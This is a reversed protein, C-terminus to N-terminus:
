KRVYQQKLLQFIYTLLFTNTTMFLMVVASHSLPLDQYGFIPLMWCIMTWQIIYIATINKSSYILLSFFIDQPLKESIFQWSYLTVLVLGLHWLTGPIHTRYFGWSHDPTCYYELLLGVGILISGMKGWYRFTSATNKKFYYGIVVGVLPYVLWPFLPFFVFPPRGTALSVGYNLLPNIVTIDWFWPSLIGVLAAVILAWIHGHKSRYVIHLLVLAIASFHLIDGIRLLQGMAPEGGSLQLDRLVGEPLGGLQYPLVFKLVNLVYGMLLLVLVRVVVDVTRHRKKFTFSLGMLLMLLQGGPGEAIATLFYGLASTHVDPHSYLMGTHIAPIFLVTFGRALDLSRIREM